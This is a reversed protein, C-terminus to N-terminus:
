YLVEHLDFTVREGNLFVWPEVADLAQAPMKPNDGVFVVFLDV